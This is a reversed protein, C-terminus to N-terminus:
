ICGKKLRLLEFSTLQRITIESVFESNWDICGFNDKIRLIASVVYLGNPLEDKWSYALGCNHEIINWAKEDGNLIKLLHTGQANKFVVYSFEYSEDRSNSVVASQDLIM